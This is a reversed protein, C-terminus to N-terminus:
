HNLVHAARGTSEPQTEWCGCQWKYSDTVETGPSRIAEMSVSHLHHVYIRAPLVSMCM